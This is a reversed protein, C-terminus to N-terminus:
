FSGACKGGEGMTVDRKIEKVQEPNKSNGRNQTKNNFGDEMEDEKVGVLISCAKQPSRKRRDIAKTGYEHGNGKVFKMVFINHKDKKTEARMPPAKSYKTLQNKCNAKPM